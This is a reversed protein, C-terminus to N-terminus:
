VIVDLIERDEHCKEIEMEIIRDVMSIVCVLSKVLCVKPLAPIAQEATLDGITNNSLDLKLLTKVEALAVSPIETLNNHTLILEQLVPSMGSFANSDLKVM